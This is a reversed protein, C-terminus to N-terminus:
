LRRPLWHIEIAAAVRGTEVDTAERAERGDRGDRANECRGSRVIEMGLRESMARAPKKRSGIGGVVRNRVLSVRKRTTARRTEVVNGFSRRSDFIRKRRTLATGRPNEFERLRKRRPLGRNRTRKQRTKTSASIADATQFTSRYEPLDIRNVRTTFPSVTPRSRFQWAIRVEFAVASPPYRPM